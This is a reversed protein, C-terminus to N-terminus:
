NSYIQLLSCLDKTSPKRTLLMEANKRNLLCGECDLFGSVFPIGIFSVKLIQRIADCRFCKDVKRRFGLFHEASIEIFNEILSRGIQIVIIPCESYTVM